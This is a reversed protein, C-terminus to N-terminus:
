VQARQLSQHLMAVEADFQAKLAASGAADAMLVDRLHLMSEAANRANCAANFASFAANCVAVANVAGNQDQETMEKMHAAELSSIRSAHEKDAAQAQKKTDGLEAALEDALRKSQKFKFSVQWEVFESM